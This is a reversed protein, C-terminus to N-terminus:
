DAYCSGGIFERILSDCPINKTSISPFYKLFKILRQGTIYEPQDEKIKKLLPMAERKLACVEYSYYSNFIFDAKCQYPYINKYEGARVDQWMDITREASSKRFKKDRVIRRLLRLDTLSMPNMDDLNVQAQPAIYIGMKQDPSFVKTLKPNLAHIGEIIIPQNENIVIPEKMTTERNKFDFSPLSTPKGQILDKLNQQLLPINLADITEFDPKGNAQLPVQKFYYDDLSIQIPEYGLSRLYVKLRRAFTTKSSSSPGAILIIRISGHKALLKEGIMHYQDDIYAECMGILETEGITKIAQQIGSITNLHVRKAWDHNAKLSNFYSEDITLPPITAENECRPYSLLFGNKLVVLRYQSLFGTSIVTIQYPYGYIGQISDIHVMNEPRYALESIVDEEKQEKYIEITKEKSIKERKIPLNAAIFQNLTEKVEKLFAADPLYEKGSTKYHFHIFISKNVGYNFVTRLDPNLQMVVVKFLLRLSAEYVLNGTKCENTIPEILHKKDDPVLTNLSTLRHDLFCALVEKSPYLDYLHQGKAREIIKKEM